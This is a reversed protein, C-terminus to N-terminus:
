HVLFLSDPGALSLICKGLTVLGERFLFDFELKARPGPRWFSDERRERRWLEFRYRFGQPKFIPLPYYGCTALFLREM